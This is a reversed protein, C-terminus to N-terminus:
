LHLTGTQIVQPVVDCRM